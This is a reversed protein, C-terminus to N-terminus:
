VPPHLADFPVTVSHPEKNSKAQPSIWGHGYVVEFTAPLENKETKFKEYATQLADFRKRGSLGTQPAETIVTSAGILKLDHMVAFVDKYLLTFMEMDMVPEAFRAHLLDDGLDHMDTFTNVHVQNDVTAWSHRLEKLTDPGFSSFMLLGGPSLVREFEKATQAFDEVWQMSLNSYILDISNAAIPLQSMDACISHLRPSKLWPLRDKFARPRSACRQRTQKLMNPSLDLAIIEANPYRQQLGVTGEGTGAGLDLIRRPQLKIYDLRQLLRQGVERHLAAGEDYRSAARDFRHQITQRQKAQPSYPTSKM